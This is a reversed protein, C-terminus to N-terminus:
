DFLELQVRKVPPDYVTVTLGARVMVEDIMEQVTDWEGGAVGTGIRPMHVSANSEIARQAVQELGRELASYRIRPFLSRGFGQQAVISAIQLKPNLHSFVVRGLRESRPVQLIEKSYHAEADPFKSAVQRAVGGGWKMAKDNVMQCIIRDGGNKPELINGHVYRIIRKDPEAQDFRILGAVRPYVTGPFGPIGVCEVRASLGTMWSEQGSDTYGIATCGNVVSTAPIKTGSIGIRSATPSGVYYDVYYQRQEGESHRSSAVFVGIPQTSIKAMRILFAEVSVDYNRKAILLEEIQPINRFDPLSGIPMVLESAAVNCLMELQWDDESRDDGGRNRVQEGWDPFLLHALEHAISFRVRERPQKPNFEIVPGHKSQVLRADSVSSNAEIRVDMMEAIFLPNFPPGSWGKEKATLVLNRVIGQVVDIPDAGKALAAVSANTWNIGNVSNM